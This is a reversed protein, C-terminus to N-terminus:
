LKTPLILHATLHSTSLVPGPVYSTSQMNCTVTSATYPCFCCRSVRRAVQLHETLTHGILLHTFLHKLPESGGFYLSDGIELEQM